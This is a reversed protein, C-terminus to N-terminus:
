DPGHRFCHRAFSASEAKPYPGGSSGNIMAMEDKFVPVIETAMLKLEVVHADSCEM